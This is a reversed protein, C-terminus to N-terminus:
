CATSAIDAEFIGNARQMERIYCIIKEVDDEAVTPVPAMNGFQWHHQRVGQRVALRISDDSHHGPEYIKHILPPGLNTGDANAGHCLSCKTNFVTEGALARDSLDPRTVSASQANSSGATQNQPATSDGCGILLLFILGTVFNAILLKGTLTGRNIVITRTAKTVQSNTM